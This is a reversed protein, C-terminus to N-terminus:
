HIRSNRKNTLRSQLTRHNTNKTRHKKNHRIQNKKTKKLCFVAYSIRMLSQLETTNEESRRSHSHAPSIRGPPSTSATPAHSSESRPDSEPHTTSGYAPPQPM